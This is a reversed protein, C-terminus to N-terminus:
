APNWQLCIIVENSDQCKYDLATYVYLSLYMSNYILFTKKSFQNTHSIKVAVIKNVSGKLQNFTVVRILRQLM